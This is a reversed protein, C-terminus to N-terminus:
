ECSSGNAIPVATTPHNEFLAVSPVKPADNRHACCQLVLNCAIGVVIRYESINGFEQSPDLTIHLNIWM